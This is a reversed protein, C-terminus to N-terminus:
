HTLPKQTSPGSVPIREHCDRMVGSHPLRGNVRQLTCGPQMTLEKSQSSLSCLLWYPLWGDLEEFVMASQGDDDRQRADLRIQNM